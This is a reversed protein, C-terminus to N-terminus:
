GFLSDIEDQSMARDPTTALAIAEARREAIGEPLPLNKFRRDPGCYGPSTVFDRTNRALWEIRSLLITPAIPKKVVFNAGADRAKKVKDAPTHASVLIIPITFNPNDKQRRLHRVFSIGDENPMEADVILLDFASALLADRAEDASRSACTKGIKFGQLIQTLIEASQQNDDVVLVKSKALNLRSSANLM